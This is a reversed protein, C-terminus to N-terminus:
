KPAAGTKPAAGNSTPLNGQPLPTPYAMNGTDPTGRGPTATTSIDGQPLPTPYAMNGTDPTGSGPTATTVGGSPTQASTSSNPSPPSTQSQALASPSLGVALMPAVVLACAISFRSM